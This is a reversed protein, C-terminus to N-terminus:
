TSLFNTLNTGFNAIKEVILYQVTHSCVWGRTFVIGVVRMRMYACPVSNASIGTGYCPWPMVALALMLM